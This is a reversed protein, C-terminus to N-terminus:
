QRVAMQDPVGRPFSSTDAVRRELATVNSRDCNRAVEGAILQDVLNFHDQWLKPRHGQLLARQRGAGETNRIFDTVAAEWAADDAAPLLLPIADGIERFCPLDSAIVPIGLAMAEALPLGYGEAMSPLLVAKASRVWRFAEEDACEPLVTVHRSLRPDNRLMCQVTESQRGWQGILLLTPANEAFIAILRQWVRLLLLHNKRPEITSLCVFHNGPSSTSSVVSSIHDVGLHAVTVSPMRLARKAAFDTLDNLTSQSNAIIGDAKQLAFTVRASHRRVARARTLDPHKVPILDHVMYYAKVKSSRIWRWHSPLDFDTHGVNLYAKGECHIPKVSSHLVRAALRALHARFDKTEHALLAFLTNSHKENLVRIVGRHQVVAHADACFHRTYADCVRDIGTAKRGTWALSIQRTVDLLLPRPAKM